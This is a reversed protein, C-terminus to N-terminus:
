KPCTLLPTELNPKRFNSFQSVRIYYVKALTKFSHIFYSIPASYRWEERERRGIFPVYGAAEREQRWSKGVVTNVKLGHAM